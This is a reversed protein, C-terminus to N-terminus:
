SVRIVSQTFHLGRLLDQWTGQLYELFDDKFSSFSIHLLYGIRFLSPKVDCSYVIHLSSFETTVDIETIMNWSDKFQIPIIKSKKEIKLIFLIIFVLFHRCLYQQVM